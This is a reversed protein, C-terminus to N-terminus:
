NQYAAHDRHCPEGSITIGRGRVRRRHLDIGGIEKSLGFGVHGEWELAGLGFPALNQRRLLIVDQALRARFRCEGALVPVRLFRAHIAARRAPLNQELRVVLKIGATAPRTKRFNRRLFFDDRPVIEAVSHMARFNQTGVAAAMEAVNEGVARGGGAQAVADIGSGNIQGSGIRRRRLSGSFLSVLFYRKFVVFSQLIAKFLKQDGAILIPIAYTFLAQVFIAVVFNLVTLIPGFWMDPGLFLFKSNGAYFYKLLSSTIVKVGFFVIATMILVILFLSVYKKYVSSLPKKYTMAVALGTLLSSFVVSLFMRSYYALKSLLLFNVPYHLFKEGWIASIPPGLLARLPVRPSLYILMLAMFEILAFIAFPLYIKPNKQFSQITFSYVKSILSLNSPKSPM